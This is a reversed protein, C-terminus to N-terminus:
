PRVVGGGRRIQQPLVPSIIARAAERDRVIGHAEAGHGPEENTAGDVAAEFRKPDYRLPRVTVRGDEFGYNPM